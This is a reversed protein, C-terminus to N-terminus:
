FIIFMWIGVVIMFLNESLLIFGFLVNSDGGVCVCKLEWKDIYVVKIVLVVGIGGIFLLFFVVVLVFLEVVMGIVVYVEIFFYVYVYFVICM